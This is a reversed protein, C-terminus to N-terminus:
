NILKRITYRNIRTLIVYKLDQIEINQVPEQPPTIEIKTKELLNEKLQDNKTELQSNKM